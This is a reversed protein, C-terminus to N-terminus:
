KKRDQHKNHMDSLAGVTWWDVNGNEDKSIDVAKGATAVGLITPLVFIAIVICILINLFSINTIFFLM